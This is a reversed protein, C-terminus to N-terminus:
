NFQAIQTYREAEQGGIFIGQGVRVWAHAQLRNQSDEAQGTQRQVGLCLTNAIHRHDLMGKAAIAKPLCKLNWPLRREAADLAWRLRHLTKKQPCTPIQTPPSLKGLLQLLRQSPLILLLVQALMLRTLAETALLWESTPRLLTALRSHQPM